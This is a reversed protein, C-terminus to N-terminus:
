MRLSFYLLRVMLLFSCVEIVMSAEYLSKILYLMGRKKNTEQSILAQSARNWWRIPDFVYM